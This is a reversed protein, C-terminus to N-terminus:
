ESSDCFRGMEKSKISVCGPLSSCLQKGGGGGGGYTHPTLPRESGEIWGGPCLIQPEIYM